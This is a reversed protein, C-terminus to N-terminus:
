LGIRELIYSAIFYMKVNHSLKHRVPRTPTTRIPSASQSNVSHAESESESISQENESESQAESQVAQNIAPIHLNVEYDSDSEFAEHNSLPGSQIEQGPEFSATTKVIDLNSQFLKCTM